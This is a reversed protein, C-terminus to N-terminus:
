IERDLPGFRAIRGREVRKMRWELDALDTADRLFREDRDLPLEAWFRKLRLTFAALRGPTASAKTDIFAVGAPPILTASRQM